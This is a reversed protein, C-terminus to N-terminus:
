ALIKAGRGNVNESNRHLNLRNEQGILVWTWLGILDIQQTLWYQVRAIIADKLTESVKAPNLIEELEFYTGNKLGYKDLFIQRTKVVLTNVLFNMLEIDSEEILDGFLESVIRDFEELKIM